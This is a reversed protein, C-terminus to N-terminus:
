SIQFLLEVTSDDGQSAAASGIAKIHSLDERVALYAQSDTLGTQEALRLLQSFDLFVLSSVREPRDDLVAKFSSADAVSGKASKVATIGDLNTSIVLRGDFVAYDIEVGPGLSLSFAEDGGGLDKTSFTPAQGAGTTPPTFLKALPAQLKSFALRTAAEDKTRAILTLVPAPIAQSLWLATEGKFLPLIDRTINVGARKSLDRQARTLLTSLRQGTDTGAAGAAL